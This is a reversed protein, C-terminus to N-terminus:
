RDLVVKHGWSYKDREGDTLVWMVPTKPQECTTADDMDTFVVLGDARLEDVKQMLDRFCTGGGGDIEVSDARVSRLSRTDRIQNDFLVLTGIVGRKVM